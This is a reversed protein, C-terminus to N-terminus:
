PRSDPTPNGIRELGKLGDFEWLYDKANAARRHWFAAKNLDRPVGLGNEYMEGLKVQARPFEAAKRYCSVAESYKGTQKYCDGLNINASLEGNEASWKYWRVAAEMNKPTGHGYELAEAIFYGARANGQEAAKGYWQLAQAEDKPVGGGRGYMDAVQMQADVDGREAASRYWRAAEALNQSNLAEKGRRLAEPVPVSDPSLGAPALRAEAQLKRANLDALEAYKGKPFWALYGLFRQPDKADAISKWLAEEVEPGEIARTAAGARGKLLRFTLADAGFSAAVMGMQRLEAASSGLFRPYSDSQPDLAKKLAAQLDFVSRDVHDGVIGTAESLLCDVFAVQSQMEVSVPAGADSDSQSKSLVKATQEKLAAIAGSREAFTKDITVGAPDNSNNIPTPIPFVRELRALFLRTENPAAGFDSRWTHRSHFYASVEGAVNTMSSVEGALLAAAYDIWPDPIRLDPVRGLPFNDDPKLQRVLDVAQGIRGARANGRALDLRTYNEPYEAEKKELLEAAQRLIADVEAARKKELAAIEQRVSAANAANPTLALYAQLCAAAHLPANLNEFVLGLNFYVPPYKDELRYPNAKTLALLAEDWAQRKAAELGKDFYEKETGSLVVPTEDIPGQAVVPALGFALLGAVLLKLRMIRDEV